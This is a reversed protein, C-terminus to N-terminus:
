YDGDLGAVVAAVDVHYMGALPGSEVLTAMSGFGSLRGIQREFFADTIGHRHMAAALRLLDRRGVKVGCGAKAQTITIVGERIVTVTMSVDYPEQAACLKEAEARSECRFGRVATPREEPM